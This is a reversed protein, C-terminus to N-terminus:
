PLMAHEEPIKGGREQLRFLSRGTLLMARSPMCVAGSHSGMIYARNFSTGSRVLSDMHPTQIHPNGLARITDFRQDDTFLFLLNPRESGVPAPRCGLTPLSAALGGAALGKLFDRRTWHSYRM